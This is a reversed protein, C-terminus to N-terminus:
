SLVLEKYADLHKRAIIPWALNQEAFERCKGGVENRYLSDAIYKEALDTMADEDNDDVVPYISGGGYDRIGGVNTTVVPLGCALAEVIANNAGSHTMPILLFRSKQYLELLKDDPIDHHYITSRSALFEEPFFKKYKEAIVIDFLLEPHKKLLRSIIRTLMGINRRHHGVFLIHDNKNTDSPRFFVLDVGHHIFKVRNKGIFQEFFGIDKSYLVIASPLKKLVRLDEESWQAPPHHITGIINQPSKSFDKWKDMYFLHHKFYLIHQIEDQGNKLCNHFVLESLASISNRSPWGKYSSYLKGLGRLIINHPLCISKTAPNLKQIYEALLDYGTHQGFWPIKDALYYVKM